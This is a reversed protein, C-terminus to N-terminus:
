GDRAGVPVAFRQPNQETGALLEGGDASRLGVPEARQEAVAVVGVERQGAAGEVVGYEAGDCPSPFGAVGAALLGYPVGLDAAEGDGQALGSAGQPGVSGLELRDGVIESGPEGLAAADARDGGGLGDDAEGVGTSAAVVGREGRQGAGARQLGAAAAGHAVPEVAAAVAREVAGDVGDGHDPHAAAGGGLGVDGPAGGLALGGALDSAAELPVDGALEVAGESGGHGGGGARRVRSSLYLLTSPNPGVGVAIM